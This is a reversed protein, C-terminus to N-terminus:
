ANKGALMVQGSVGELTGIDHPAAYCLIDYQQYVTSTAAIPAHTGIPSFLFPYLLSCLTLQILDINGMYRVTCYWVAKGGGRSFFSLFFLFSVFFLILSSFFILAWVVGFFALVLM